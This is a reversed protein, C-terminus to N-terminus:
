GLRSCRRRLREVGVVDPLELSPQDVPGLVLVTGCESLNEERSAVIFKAEVICARPAGGCSGHLTHISSGNEAGCGPRDDARAYGTSGRQGQEIVGARVGQWAADSAFM